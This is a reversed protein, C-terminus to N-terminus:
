CSVSPEETILRRWTALTDQPIGMVEGVVDDIKRRVPCEDLYPFPELRERAVEKQCEALPEVIHPQKINPVALQKIKELSFKCYNLHFSRISLFLLLGITSNFWLCLARMADLNDVHGNEKILVTAWASGIIPEETLISTIRTTSTGFREAILLRSGKAWYRKAKDENKKNFVLYTDYSQKMTTILETKHYYMARMDQQAKVKLFLDDGRLGRGGVGIKAVENFLVIKSNEYIGRAADTLSPSYFSCPTWDGKRMYQAENMQETGWDGIRGQKLDSLLHFAEVSNTPNTHLNIFRTPKNPEGDKRRRAVLLSENIGTNESFFVRNTDHSTIVLEIYWHKYLFRRVGTASTAVCQSFPMVLGLRAGQKKSLHHALCVFAPASTTLTIKEDKFFKQLLKKEEEKVIRETEKSLQDHRLDNRTFPPNMIILDMKEEFAQEESEQTGIIREQTHILDKFLVNSDQMLDLSGLWAGTKDEKVGLKARFINTRNFAVKPNAMALVSATLHTASLNIDIGYLVDEILSLQLLHLDDESPSGKRTISFREECLTKCASLLTGTGCAPDCIRLRGVASADSWDIFDEPLALRALLFAAPISTYFSGDYKASDLLYHYIRGPLDNKYSTLKSKVALARQVIKELARVSSSTAPFKILIERASHFIPYYDVDLVQKWASIFAQIINEQAELLEGPARVKKLKDTPKELLRDHFMVANAVILLGIKSAKKATRKKEELYLSLVEAIKADTGEDLLESVENIATLLEDKIQQGAEEEDLYGLVRALYQADGKLWRTQKLKDDIIGIDLCEDEALMRMPSKSKEVDDLYCLAVARQAMGKEIRERAQEEANERNDGIKAEIIILTQNVKVILDPRKAGHGAVTQEAQNLVGMKLLVDHLLGNLAPESTSM